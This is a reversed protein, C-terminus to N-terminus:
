RSHSHNDIGFLLPALEDLARRYVRRKFFIVEDAPTWYDTWRWAEFEPTDSADLRIEGDPATLRLLFWIQKQGICLPQRAPQRYRAPLRYRLWKRTRGVVTVQDRGLGIEESLERYMADQLSEGQALGGQPFQWGGRGVRQGWFVQDADNCLIIGVNRRFGDADIM